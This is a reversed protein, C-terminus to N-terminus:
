RAYPAFAKNVKLHDLDFVGRSGDSLFEIMYAEGDDHEATRVLYLIQAKAWRRGNSVAKHGLVIQGDVYTQV